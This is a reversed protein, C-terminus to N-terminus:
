KEYLYYCGILTSKTKPDDGSMLTVTRQEAIQLECTKMGDSTECHQLKKGLLREVSQRAKDFPADVLVSIGVGMGVNGPSFQLVRFGAVATPVKPVYYPDRDNRTYDSQFHTALQQLRPDAARQWDLWSDKCLVMREISEDNAIGASAVPFVLLFAFAMIGAARSASM